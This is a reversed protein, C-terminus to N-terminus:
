CSPHFKGLVHNALHLPNSNYIDTLSYIRYIRRISMMQLFYHYTLVYTVYTRSMYKTYLIHKKQVPCAQIFIFYIVLITFRLSHYSDKIRIVFLRCNSIRFNDDSLRQQYVHSAINMMQLELVNKIVHFHKM